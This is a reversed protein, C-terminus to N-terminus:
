VFLDWGIIKGPELTLVYSKICVYILIIFNYYMDYMIVVLAM